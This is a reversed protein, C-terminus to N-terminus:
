WEVSWDFTSTSQYRARKILYGLRSFHTIVDNMQKAAVKHASTQNNVPDSWAQYATASATLGTSVAPDSSPGVVCSLDGAEVADAVHSEILHIEDIAPRRIVAADRAETAKFFSTDSM